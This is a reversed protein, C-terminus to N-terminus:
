SYEVFANYVRTHKSHHKSLDGRRTNSVHKALLATTSLGHGAFYNENSLFSLVKIM